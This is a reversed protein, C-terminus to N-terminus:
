KTNSRAKTDKHKIDAKSIPVITAQRLRWHDVYPNESPLPDLLITLNWIEKRPYAQVIEVRQDPIDHIFVREGESPNLANLFFFTRLTYRDGSLLILANKGVPAENLLHIFQISQGHYIMSHEKLQQPLSGFPFILLPMIILLRVIRHQLKQLFHNLSGAVLVCLFGMMEFVYRPGSYVIDKYSFFAYILILNLSCTILIWHFETKGRLFLIPILILLDPWPWRWLCENLKQTYWIINKFFFKAAFSIPQWSSDNRYGAFFPDSFIYYNYSVFLFLLALFGAVSLIGLKPNRKLSWLFAPALLLGCSFPRVLFAIGALIGALFYESRKESQFATFLESVSWVGACLAAMHAMQGSGMMLVFPSVCFLACALWAADTNFVIKALRWVGIAAIFTIMPNIIWPNGLLWGISLLLPWGTPYMSVWKSQTMLIHDVSFGSPVKPPSLWLNGSSLIRGQFM